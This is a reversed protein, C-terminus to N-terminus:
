TNETQVQEVPGGVTRFGANGMSSSPTNSTRASNRYRNCYSDHCLYSGGRLVRAEGQPPGQPEHTPSERYYDPSFWDGCWEWVNGVTQWLGYGNPFYTRVPATTLWGDEASNRHPFEGQWINCRWADKDSDRVRDGWPYTAGTLGGRSAYEWQAETPLRRKAWECYAAADLWSVHTVPHDAFGHVSSLRGGPHKWDAGLVGRWWPAGDAPPMVDAPDAAIALYFVASYGFREADTRYGTADVFRAFQQTTVAVADISFSELTVEHVPTEGDGPNGVGSSDGMVFTGAPIVCQEVQHDGFTSVVLPQPTSSTVRSPLCCHNEDDSM